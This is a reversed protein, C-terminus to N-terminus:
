VWGTLSTCIYKYIFVLRWAFYGESTEKNCSCNVCWDRFFSIANKHGQLVTKKVHWKQLFQGCSVLAFQKSFILLLEMSISLTGAYLSDVWVSTNSVRVDGFFNRDASLIFKWRNALIMWTQSGQICRKQSQCIKIICLSNPSKSLIVANCWLQLCLDSSCLSYIEDSTSCFWYFICLM